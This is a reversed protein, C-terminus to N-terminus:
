IINFDFSRVKIPTNRGWQNEVKSYEMSHSEFIRLCYSELTRGRCSPAIENPGVCPLSVSMSHKMRFLELWSKTM